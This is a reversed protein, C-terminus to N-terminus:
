EGLAEKAARAICGAKHSDCQYVRCFPCGRGGAGDDPLAWEVDLVARAFRNRQEKIADRGALIRGFEKAQTRLEGARLLREAQELLWVADGNLIGYREARAKIEEVRARVAGSM